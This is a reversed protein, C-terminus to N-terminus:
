PTPAAAKPADGSAILGDRIRIIPRAANERTISVPPARKAYKGYFV